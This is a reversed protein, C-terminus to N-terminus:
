PGLHDSSGVSGWGPDGQHHDMQPTMGFGETLGPWGAHSASASCLLTQLRSPPTMKGERPASQSLGQGGGRAQCGRPGPHNWEVIKPQGPAFLTNEATQGKALM